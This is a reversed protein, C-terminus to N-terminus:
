SVNSHKHGGSTSKDCKAISTAKWQNDSVRNRKKITFFFSSLLNNLEHVPIDELKRKEGVTLCWRYWVNLDNETKKATNRPKEKKVLQRIEEENLLKTTEEEEESLLWDEMGLSFLNEAEIKQNSLNM